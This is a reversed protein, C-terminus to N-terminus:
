DCSIILYIANRIAVQVILFLAPNKREYIQLQGALIMVAIESFTIVIKPLYSLLTGGRYALHVKCLQINYCDVLSM